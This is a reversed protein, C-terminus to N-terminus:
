HLRAPASHTPRLPATGSLRKLAIGFDRALEAASMAVDARVMLCAIMAADERDGETASAILTAFCCEDAGACVCETHHRALPRRGHRHCLECLSGLAHLVRQGTEPAFQAEFQARLRSQAEPGSSWSRLCLIATSELASLDSLRAVAAGGRNLRAQNM